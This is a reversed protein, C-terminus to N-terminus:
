VIRKTPLTLHTYSVTSIRLSHGVIFNKIFNADDAIQSIWSCQNYAVSNKKTNKTACINKLALNLTHVVCPTWYISPFELEILMGAAKCVTANDTIIQVVNNSGVEVIADRMHRAMFDKDKLDGSANVWKLFMKGSENIAM